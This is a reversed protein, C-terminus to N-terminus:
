EELLENLSEIININGNTISSAHKNVYKLIEKIKPDSTLNRTDADTYKKLDSTSLLPMNVLFIKFEEM